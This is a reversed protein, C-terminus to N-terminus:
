IWLVQACCSAAAVYKAKTLSTAVVTQKKCQWSILRCGLFQCGGTTSKRDLSARAYDGDSYAVLNFPSDKPYWLGLHPKGKLYRFIRKVAHLYSVKLIVQFRACAYVALMIYPRSSTLYMLSGIMSRYIHVDVDEGDPDKLLPKETEILTSASKVDIFGFKRLIKAVYKHQSIFIGDDKQKVQLGLIFTLEGMSSMQFKDKMLRKFSKCLKKNTSGFIIDDVYVQVLLIDGKQKKIFLTQDIKGRTRKGDKGYEKNSSSFDFGWHNLYCSSRQPSQYNSYSVTDSPSATNFSNTSNTPNPGVVNIHASAANVRLTNNSSFEEFEARLDRVGTPSGVNLNEKIGATNNPQNGAVVLLFGEDAKRNIKGLPDLTNLITIPCEFPRMFGISPSRGLLLEYPTKNPPKTVLVRQLPRSVSSVPKSKCSARHQKGKKCAVCTHNNGFVKSPLGKVLNGKVLKNMTKFNIHGLRRHWLNSEYNNRSKLLLALNVATADSQILLPFKDENATPLQEQLPFEDSGTPIGQQRLSNAIKYIKMILDNAMHSYNEVHLKYSIMVIALGKRLPYDKKILMFIDQDKTSVHHVGCTDYLKWEVPAHMLNQTHTWLYDEVDPEFLRKLKVWLEKEKDSTAPRISLTEKVLGWLQNLDERDFHKLMDVFFQYSTSSGGLRIIKWYSRHREVHVKWDIIPHKFQLAEIYIEKVRVLQMMEKVKEEPVEETAKVEKSTKLKKVSEQELRLGKRKVKRDKTQYKLVKAYNEQYKVLDSILEIRRGIPLETAFQQYEQLYMAVTENNWDLGDIMIQLEEEAHIRVTEADKAIQENMRHADRAMEEELEMAVTATAVEAATPVGQVGGNTLISTADMSTLVTTMVETDDSVREAAEEGEDLRRGKIPVDDGSQEAVGGDKDELLKIKAKLSNIKLEQAEFKSVMESQQRQLSTCLATLENLKQQMSGEDAALSTVRLTSDSPLTSTKPINARDQAAELGSDTPCAEGQSVDRIPSAPEDAVPPLTSSQAIRARKTYHRPYMLFKFVKNNVNRVMGDFIMKSFNYVRNTALCVLATAINSSFENFGTSKPSLCQM